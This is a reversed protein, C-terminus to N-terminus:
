TKVEVLQKAALHLRDRTTQDRKIRNLNEVVSHDEHGMRSSGGDSIKGDLKGITEIIKVTQEIEKPVQASLFGTNREVELGIGIRIRQMRLLQQLQQKLDVQPQNPDVSADLGEIPHTDIAEPHASKYVRIAEVFTRENVHLWGNEAFHAAIETAKIGERLSNVLLRYKPHNRILKIFYRQRAVKQIEPTIVKASQPFQIKRITM